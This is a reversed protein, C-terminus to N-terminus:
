SPTGATTPLSSTTSTSRSTTATPASISARRDDLRRHRPGAAPVAAPVPQLRLDRGTRPARRARVRRGALRQRDTGPIPAEVYRPSSRGPRRSPSRCPWSGTVRAWSPGLQGRVAGARRSLRLAGGHRGRDGAATTGDLSGIYGPDQAYNLGVEPRPTPTPTSRRPDRVDARVRRAGDDGGLGGRVPQRQAAGRGPVQGPAARGRHRQSLRRRDTPRNPDNLDVRTYPTGAGDLEAAIAETAPAATM